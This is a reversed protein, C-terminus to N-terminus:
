TGERQAQRVRSIAERREWGPTCLPGILELLPLPGCFEMTGEDAALPKKCDM